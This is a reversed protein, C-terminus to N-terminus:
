RRPRRIPVILPSQDVIEARGGEGVQTLKALASMSDRTRAKALTKETRKVQRQQFQSAYRAMVTEIDLHAYWVELNGAAAFERMAERYRGVTQLM